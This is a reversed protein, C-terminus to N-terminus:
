ECLTTAQLGMAQFYMSDLMAVSVLLSPRLNIHALFATVCGPFRFDVVHMQLLVMGVTWGEKFKVVLTM